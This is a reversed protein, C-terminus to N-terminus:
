NGVGRLVQVVSVTSGQSIQALGTAPIVGGLRSAGSHRVGVHVGTIGNRAMSSDCRRLLLRPVGM